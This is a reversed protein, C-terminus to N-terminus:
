GMLAFQMVVPNHDSFQFGTDVTEVAAVEVDQSVAFGDMIVVFTEGPTYPQGADRATPANTPACLRMGEGLDEEELPQLWSVDRWEFGFLTPSDGGLLDRNFDGGCIVYDGRARADAMAQSLLQVQANRVAEDQAYASAHLNILTLYRGNDVPLRLQAFCRDLDLLKQFGEELPLSRRVAEEVRYRSFTMLGSRSKGIPETLPYFLYASDYNLAFVAGWDPLAQTLIATQDVHHSRDSDVDVEQLLVLAPDEQAILGAAGQTTQVVGDRSLARAYKGGDLFFSYEPTYAGFGLNMTMVTLAKGSPLVAQQNNDVALARGDELRSYSLWVYAVYAASAALALALLWAAAKLVWRRKM